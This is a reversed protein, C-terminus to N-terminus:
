THDADTRRSTQLGTAIREHLSEHYAIMDPELDGRPTPEHEFHGHRDVGRVLAASDAFGGQQRVHPAVYRFAVGIRRENSSNPPSSHAILIHHLSIEGPKLILDVARAEDLERAITQGRAVVNHEADSDIHELQRTHTGPMVRMCGSDPKSPSLAVWASVVDEGGLGWYTADQHWSIFAPMRPEKIFFNTNWCLLDPGLLDEVADLMIPHRMLENVWKFLLHTKHRYSGSLVEGQRAEFAELRSRYDDAQGPTLVSLPFCYGDRHFQESAETSLIKGM